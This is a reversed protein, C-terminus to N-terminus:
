ERGNLPKTSPEMALYAPRLLEALSRDRLFVACEPPEDVLTTVSGAPRSEVMTESQLSFYSDLCEALAAGQGAANDAAPPGDSRRAHLNALLEDRERGRWALIAFPDDDFKEALLYCTAAVHKCPVASDPCTCDLSLSRTTKPFLSLGVGEFVDEIDHPMDGALLRAAYWASDALAQEVQTWDPKGFPAMGIRVRYPRARSGQVLATVLGTTVELSMVQGKRAYTRGRALRNGLGIGELVSIFRESWWTQAIAGRATRAKLGGEVQRPRAPPPYWNSM